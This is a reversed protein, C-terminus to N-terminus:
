SVTKQVFGIMPRINEKDSSRPIEQFIPYNKLEDEYDSVFKEFAKNYNIDDSCLFGKQNLFKWSLQFEYLMTKYSHDSDHIFMDINKIKELTPRLLKNSDGLILKWNHNLKKPVLYGVSGEQKLKESSDIDISYLKGEKERELAKLIMYSSWGMSVGTEVIKKLHFKRILVYWIIPYKIFNFKNSINETIEDISKDILLDIESCIKDMFIRNKKISLYHRVEKSNHTKMIISIIEPNHVIAKLKSLLLINNRYFM